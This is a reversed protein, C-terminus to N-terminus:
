TAMDATDQQRSAAQRIVQKLQGFVLAAVKLVASSHDPNIKHFLPRNARAIASKSDLVSQVKGIDVEDLPQNVPIGALSKEVAEVASDRFLQIWTNVTHLSVKERRKNMNMYPKLAAIGGVPEEDQDSGQSQQDKGVDIDSPTISFAKILTVVDGATLKTM